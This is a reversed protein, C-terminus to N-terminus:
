RDEVIPAQIEIVFTGELSGPKTKFGRFRRRTFTIRATLEELGIRAECDEGDLYGVVLGRGAIPYSSPPDRDADIQFWHRLGRECVELCDDSVYVADFGDELNGNLPRSGTTFTSCGLLRQIERYDGVFDIETITQHEADIMLARM